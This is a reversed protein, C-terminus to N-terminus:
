SLHSSDNYRLLVPGDALHHVESLATPEYRMRHVAVAPGAVAHLVWLRVPYLHSVVLVRGGRHQETLRDAVPQVRQAVSRVSEGGPPALDADARWAALEPAWRAEVEALTLGEWRGFDVERLDPEVQVALGLVAGVVSATQHARRVPSSIVATLGTGGLVAALAEAQSRGLASLEPDAGTCGAFRRQVTHASAGHRALLFETPAATM